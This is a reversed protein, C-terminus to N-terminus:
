RLRDTIERRARESLQKAIFDNVREPDPKVRVAVEREDWTEFDAPDDATVLGMGTHALWRQCRSPGCRWGHAGNM